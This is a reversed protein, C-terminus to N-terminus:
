SKNTREKFLLLKDINLIEKKPFKEESLNGSVWKEGLPKLVQVTHIIWNFCKEWENVNDLYIFIFLEQAPNEILKLQIWKTIKNTLM